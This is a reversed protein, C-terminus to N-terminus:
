SRLLLISACIISVFVCSRNSVWPPAILVAKFDPTASKLAAVSANASQRPGTDACSSDVDASSPAGADDAGASVFGDGVTGIPALRGTVFPANGLGGRM